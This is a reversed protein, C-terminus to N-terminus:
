DVQLTTAGPPQLSPARLLEPNQFPKFPSGLSETALASIDLTRTWFAMQWNLVQGLLLTDSHMLFAFGTSNDSLGNHMVEGLLCPSPKMQAIKSTSETCFTRNVGLHRALPKVASGRTLRDSDVSFTSM